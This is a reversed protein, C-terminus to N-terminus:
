RSLPHGTESGGWIEVTGWPHWVDDAMRPRVFRDCHGSGIGGSLVHRRIARLGHDVVQPGAGSNPDRIRPVVHAQERDFRACADCVADKVARERRGPDIKAVVPHM